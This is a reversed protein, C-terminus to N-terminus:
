APMFAKRGGALKRYTTDPRGCAEITRILRVEPDMGEFVNICGSMDTCDGDDMVLLGTRTTFNYELRQVHCQFRDDYIDSM